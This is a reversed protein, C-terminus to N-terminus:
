LITITAKQSGVKCELHMLLIHPALFSFTHGLFFDLEASFLFAAAATNGLFSFLKKVHPLSSSVSTYHVVAPVLMIQMIAM